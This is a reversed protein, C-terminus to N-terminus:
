EVLTSYMERCWMQMENTIGHKQLIYSKPGDCVYKKFYEIFLLFSLKVAKLIM